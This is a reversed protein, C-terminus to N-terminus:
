IELSKLSKWIKSRESTIDDCLTGGMAINHRKIPAMWCTRRESLPFSYVFFAVCLTMSLLAYFWYLSTGWVFEEIYKKRYSVRKNRRPKEPLVSLIVTLLLILVDLFSGVLTDSMIIYYKCLFIIIGGSQWHPNNICCTHRFTWHIELHSKKGEKIYCSLSFCGYVFFIKKERM